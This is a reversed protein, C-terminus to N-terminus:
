LLLLFLHLHLHFIYLFIILMLQDLFLLLNLFYNSAELLFFMRFLMIELILVVFYGVARGFHLTKLKDPLQFNDGQIIFFSRM